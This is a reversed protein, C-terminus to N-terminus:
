PGQRAHPPDRQWLATKEDSERTKNESQRTSDRNRMIRLPICIERGEGATAQEM